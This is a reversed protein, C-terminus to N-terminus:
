VGGVPIGVNKAGIHAILGLAKWVSHPEPRSSDPYPFMRYSPAREEDPACHTFCLDRSFDPTAQALRAYWEPVVGLALVVAVAPPLHSFIFSSSEITITTVRGPRHVYGQLWESVSATDLAGQYRMTSFRDRGFLIVGGQDPEVGHRAYLDEAKAASKVCGCLMASRFEKAYIRDMDIGEGGRTPPFVLAKPLTPLVSLFRGETQDTVPFARQAYREKFCETLIQIVHYPDEAEAEALSSAISQHLKINLFGQSLENLMKSLQTLKSVALDLLERELMQRLKTNLIQLMMNYLWSQSAGGVTVTLDKLELSHKQIILTVRGEEYSYGYEMHISGGTVSLSAEGEGLVDGLM